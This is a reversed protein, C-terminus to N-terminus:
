KAPAERSITFTQGAATAKVFFAELPAIAGEIPVLTNDILRYFTIGEADTSIYAECPFPNGCLNWGGHEVEDYAPTVVVPENSNRLTATFNMEMDDRNAYLFGIGNQLDIGDHNNQWEEDTATRDWGYLDYDSEETILGADSASIPAATPLAMLYYGNNTEVYDTGYGIIFKKMTAEVDSNTKLQGGDEIILAATGEITIINADAIDFVTAEARLIVDQEMTPVGAPVWNDGDSWDGEIVFIKTSEDLTTFTISESFETEEDGCIGKVKVLYTTEPLINSEDNLVFPSENAEYTIWPTEVSGQVITVDDIALFWQDYCDYHRIAIYGMGSYASLDVTYPSSTYGAQSLSLTWTGVTTFSAPNTNDTTSVMVSFKEACYETNRAGAYFSISGGLRVQPSVLYNDPTVATGSGSTSGSIYSESLMFGDSSNYGYGTSFDNNSTPYATNHMWSNPSTTNGQFTTWGQWGDEFDYTIVPEVVSEMEAVMVLYSDSYGTWSITAGYATEESISLDFPVPCSSLTTFTSSAWSSQGDEEGCDAQVHWLYETEPLLDEILLSNDTTTIEETWGYIGFDDVMLYFGGTYDHRIAIYGQQGDYASLDIIVETWEPNAAEKEKLVVDFDEITNGTTSLLVEYEDQADDYTSRMIWFKLTAQNPFLIQPSVLWSDAHIDVDSYAVAVYSGGHANLDASNDNPNEIGWEMSGDDGEKYITWQSLDEEFSDFFYAKNYSVNYSEADGTWNLVASTSTIDTANPNFPPMCSLNDKLIRIQNKSTTTTGSNTPNMPDYNTGDSYVYISQSATATFTNFATTSEYSGTNDDVIIAVNQTGDYIFGEDLVITTWDNHTFNVNGSFVLDNETVNIWDSTSEFSNKNTSVMYIDLSRDTEINNPKYFDISRIFGPAGLEEITYIQQTLSYNYFNHFPLYNNTGTQDGTIIVKASPTFSVTNSWGSMGDEDGCNARVKATYTTESILNTLTYPNETVTIPNSENGNLCIQWETAEGNEIWNLTATNATTGTCTLRTPKPCTNPGAPTIGLKIQNKSTMIGNATGPTGLPNYNNSDSYQYIAQNASTTFTRFNSGSLYSGTNDDVVIAVNQVGDYFFSNDFIITTWANETFTVSGSFVLDDETVAIWDSTSSFSNKNTSVMYINFSRTRESATSYFDISEINGAAGIEDTTYIQQTLSYNYYTHSPVYSSTATGSGITVKASPTFSVTNSWGSIGDEDGCNARVKATYTTEPILNTLTYPNQTVTIPNSENGNLCIQWETAEGNEIWSLTATNTTTGTCTLNVPRPCSSTSAVEYIFTTKPLFNRQSGSVSNLDSYSYGQYSADTVTEGYWSSTVYSGTTTNYVGVLLNGGQYNYPTTFTVNMEGNDISLAGNYVTTGSGTFANIATNTVEKLFVQFNASGWSVSSQSAYFKMGTITGSEMNGLEYAPYVMECKLYADTYFGYVPVYGNTSTGNHVTLTEQANVAWPAFLAMLLM